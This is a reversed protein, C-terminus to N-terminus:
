HRSTSTKANWLAVERLTEPTVTIVPATENTLILIAVCSECMKVLDAPVHPRHQIPAHCTTCEADVDDAFHGTTACVLIKM